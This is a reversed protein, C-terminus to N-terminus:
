KETKITAGSKILKTKLDYYPMNGTIKEMNIIVTPTAEIQKDLAETIEATLENKVEESNADKKLQKINIGKVQKLLKLIEKESSPTKEFLVENAEWYKGQKRAAIAYRAMRCSGDHGKKVLPNCEGDLPLNHQIILINDLESVLRKLSVNTLYCSACNYDMYEHIVIKADKEGLTNDDKTITKDLKIKIKATKLQPALVKSTNTYTLIGVGAIIVAIFTILYKKEKIADKFDSISQKLEHFINQKYDKAIIAIALDVFYTAFCLVCIKQIQFISIGALCMSIIFALVGLCFIYSFPNKFVELFKFIKFKSLNKAFLLILVFVYFFIGWLCLPIGFFQSYVTKAVGDCDIMENVSCFSALAYPNFNADYYIKCLEGALFLGTIALIFILIKKTREM